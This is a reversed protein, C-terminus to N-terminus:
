VQKSVGDYVYPQNVFSLPKIFWLFILGQVGHVLYIAVQIVLKLSLKCSVFVIIFFYEEHSLSFIKNVLILNFKTHLVHDMYKPFGWTYFEACVVFIVKSEKVKFCSNQFMDNFVTELTICLVVYQLLIVIAWHVYFRSQSCM